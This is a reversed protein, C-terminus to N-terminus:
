DGVLSGASPPVVNTVTVPAVKQPSAAAMLKGFEGDIMKELTEITGGARKLTDKFVSQMQDAKTEVIDIYTQRDFKSADLGIQTAIQGAASSAANRLKENMQRQLWDKLFTRGILFVVPIAAALSVISAQIATELASVIPTFDVDM